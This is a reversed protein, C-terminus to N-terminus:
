KLCCQNVFWLSSRKPDNEDSAIPAPSRDIDATGGIADFTQAACRFVGLAMVPRSCICCCAHAPGVRNGRRRAAPIGGPDDARAGQRDYSQHHSRVQDAARGSYRGAEGACFRTLLIQLAGTCTPSAQDM